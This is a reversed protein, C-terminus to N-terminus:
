HHDEQSMEALVGAVAEAAVLDRELDSQDDRPPQADGDLLHPLFGGEQAVEEISPSLSRRPASRSALDSSRTRRALRWVTVPLLRCNSQLGQLGPWRLSIRWSPGRQRM